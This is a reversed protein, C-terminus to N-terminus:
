KLFQFNKISILIITLGGDSNNLTQLIIGTNGYDKQGVLKVILRKLKEAITGILFPSQNVTNRKDHHLRFIDFGRQRRVFM